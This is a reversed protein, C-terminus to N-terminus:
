KKYGEASEDEICMLGLISSYSYKKSYTVGSGLKQCHNAQEQIVILRTSTWQDSPAHRLKTYIFTIGYQNTFPEQSVHLDYKQLAAQTARQMDELKTTKGHHGSGTKTVDDFESQAKILAAILEGTEESSQPYLEALPEKKPIEPKKIIQEMSNIRKNLEIMYEFMKSLQNEM